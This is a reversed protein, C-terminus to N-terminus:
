ERATSEKKGHIGKIVTISAGARALMSSPPPGLPLPLTGSSLMSRAGIPLLASRPPAATFTPTLPARPTVARTGIGSMVPSSGFSSAIGAERLHQKWAQDPNSLVAGGFRATLPVPDDLVTAPTPSENPSPDVTLRASETDDGGKGIEITPPLTTEEEKTAATLALYAQVLAARRLALHAATVGDLTVAAALVEPLLMAIAADAPAASTACAAAAAAPLAVCELYHELPDAATSDPMLRLAGHTVFAIHVRATELLPRVLLLSFFVGLAWAGAAASTATSGRTFAFAVAYFLSFAALSALTVDVAVARFISPPKVQAGSAVFDSRLTSLASAAGAAGGQSAGTLGAVEAAAAADAALAARQHPLRGCLAVLPSWWSHLTARPLEADWGPPAGGDADAAEEPSLLVPAPAPSKNVAASSLHLLASTPLPGLIAAARARRDRENVLGSFRSLAVDRARWRLVFTVFADTITQVCAASALALLLTQTTSLGELAPSSSKKSVALLYTYLVATGAASATIALVSGLFRTLPPAAHASSSADSFYHARRCFCLPRVGVLLAPPEGHLLRARVIASLPFVRPKPRVSASVLVATRWDRVIEDLADKSSELASVCGAASSSALVSGLASVSSDRSLSGGEPSVAVAKRPSKNVGREAPAVKAGSSYYGRVGLSWNPGGEYQARVMEPDAALRAVWREVRAGDSSFSGVLNLLVVAGLLFFYGMWVGVNAAASSASGLAFIDVQQQALAAFRIAIDGPGDCECVASTVSSSVVSCGATTWGLASLNYRLCSPTAVVAPCAYTIKAGAFGVGCVFTQRGFAGRCDFSLVYTYASSSTVPAKASLVTGVTDATTTASGNRSRESASISLLDTAVSAGEPAAVAGLVDAGAGNVTSTGVVDTYSALQAAEVRVAAPGDGGSVFSAVIGSLSAAAPSAPCTVSIVSQLFGSNGVDVTATKLANNWKVISLDRFPVTVSVPFVGRELTVPNGGEDAVRVSLVRSDLPRGPLLDVATTPRPASATLTGQAATAASTGGTAAIVADLATVGLLRALRRAPANAFAAAAAATEMLAIDSLAPPAAYSMRNVGEREDLPSIGWQTLSVSADPVVKRLAASAAATTSLSPPPQAAIITSPLSIRGSAYSPMCPNMAPTLVFSIPADLKPQVATSTVAPGCYPAGGPTTGEEPATSVSESRGRPASALLVSTLADLAATAADMDERPSGSVPLM